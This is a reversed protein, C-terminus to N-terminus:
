ISHQSDVPAKLNWHYFDSNEVTRIHLVCLNTQESLLPQLRKRKRKEFKSRFVLFYSPSSPLWNLHTPWILMWKAVQRRKVMMKHNAAGVLRVAALLSKKSEIKSKLTVWLLPVPSDTAWISHFIFGTSLKSESQFWFDLRLLWDISLNVQGADFRRWMITL